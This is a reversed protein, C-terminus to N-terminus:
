SWSARVWRPCSTGSLGSWPSGQSRPQVLYIFINPPICKNIPGDNFLCQLGFEKRGECFAFFREGQAQGEVKSLVNPFFGITTLKDFWSSLVFPKHSCCQTLPSRPLIHRRLSPSRLLEPLESITHQPKRGRTHKVM